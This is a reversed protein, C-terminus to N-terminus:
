GAVFAISVWQHSCMGDWTVTGPARGGPMADELYLGALSFDTRLQPPIEPLPFGAARKEALGKKSQPSLQPALLEEITDKKLVPCDDRLLAGLLKSYDECTSFIGAGGAENRAPIPYILGCPMLPAGSAARTGMELLPYTARKEPHFTTDKMGLRSWINKEMFDELSMKSVKEVVKGAWDLGTSYAWDTGPQFVLPSDWDRAQPM